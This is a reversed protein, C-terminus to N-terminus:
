TLAGSAEIIDKVRDFESITIRENGLMKLLFNKDEKPSHQLAYITLLTRKGERTDDMSSKGSDIENGFTGLIDDTIQFALGAAIAYDTIADTADCQAGALVMGVHLPNLFTYHAAKWEMVRYVDETTARGNVENLIDYTQGHATVLMTRNVISVVKNRLDEATDLNALIMHAAHVGAIASNLAIAVGFHEAEGTWEQKEHEDALMIHASPAGRRMVSRDQIDDIILIYAQIMELARAAQLIMKHNRGGSMEYGLMALAGRIRKGGRGLISLFTDIELKAGEGYQELTTKQIHRSYAAIDSDIEQQYKKLQTQFLDTKTATTGM